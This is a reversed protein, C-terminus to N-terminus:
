GGGCERACHQAQLEELPKLLSPLLRTASVIALFYRTKHCDNTNGRQKLEAQGHSLCCCCFYLPQGVVKWPSGLAKSKYM